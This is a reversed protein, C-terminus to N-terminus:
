YVNIFPATKPKDNIESITANEKCDLWKEADQKSLFYIPMNNNYRALSTYPEKRINVRNFHIIFATEM